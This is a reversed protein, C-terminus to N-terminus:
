WNGWFDLVVVKGRYESLKFKKGDQDQGEIDPAPKGIVLHRIEFLQGEAKKGVTAFFPHKVDAYQGAARELLDEMEKALKAEDAGSRGRLRNHLAMALALCARGQVEKAPNKDLLARLFAESGPDYVLADCVGGVRDSTLYDRRLIALARARPNEKGGGAQRVHTVVWVLADVAAPDKPNKEALEMFRPALKEPDPYKEQILKQREENTKAAQYNKMFAKQADEFEKAMAQYQAAPTGAQGKPKDEAWLAPGALVLGLVGAAIGKM